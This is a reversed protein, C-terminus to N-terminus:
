AEAEEFLDVVLGWHAWTLYGLSGVAGALSGMLVEPWQLAHLFEVTVAGFFIPVFGGLALVAFVLGMALAHDVEARAALFAAGLGLLLSAVLHVGNFALVATMPEVPDMWGGLLAEGLVNPTHVASVGQVVNLVLFVGAVAVYGLVGAILGERLLRAKDATM